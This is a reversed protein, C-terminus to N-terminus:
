LLTFGATQREQFPSQILNGLFRSVAPNVRRHDGKKGRHSGLTVGTPGRHSGGKSKRAPALWALVALWGPWFRWFFRLKIYRSSSSCIKKVSVGGRGVVIRLENEFWNPCIWMDIDVHGDNSMNVPGGPSGRQAHSDGSLNLPTSKKIRKSVLKSM